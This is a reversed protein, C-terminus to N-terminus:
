YKNIADMSFTDDKFDNLYPLKSRMEIVRDLDIQQILIEEKDDSAIAVVEGDPGVIQSRGCTNDGITNAGVMYLVNFLANGALDVDWRRQAPISWFSSVFIIEAGKLAEIRSPEPLEVDYCILMGVKGFKTEVVPLRNGERFKLKEQGWAYVKRMNEIVKGDDDIFVCSNYMRGPIVADAEPYGAIIHIKKEKAKKKLTQVFPGDVPEALRQLEESELLYGSYALEPFVIIDAEKEAAEDIMELIKNTNAQTNGPEQYMQGIAINLLREKKM